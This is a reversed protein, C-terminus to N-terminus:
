SLPSSMLEESSTNQKGSFARQSVIRKPTIPTISTIFNNTECHISTEKDSHVETSPSTIQSESSSDSNVVKNKSEAELSIVVIQDQKIGKINNDLKVILDTKEKNSQKLKIFRAEIEEKDQRLKVNEAEVEAFKK